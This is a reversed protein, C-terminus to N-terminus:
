IEEQRDPVASAEHSGKLGLLGNHNWFWIWEVCHLLRLNEVGREFVHTNFEFPNRSASIMSWTM